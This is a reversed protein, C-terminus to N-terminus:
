AVEEALSVIFFVRSEQNGDLDSAVVEIENPGAELQLLVEFRGTEDVPIIVGNISLIAEPSTQGRAIVTEGRVVSEESLGEIELFLGFRQVNGVLIPTSTASPVPVATATATAVATATATPPPAQVTPVVTAAATATATVAPELTATAQPTPSPPIPTNRDASQACATALILGVVVVVLGPHRYRTIRM